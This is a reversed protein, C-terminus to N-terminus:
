FPLGAKKTSSMRANENESSAWLFVVAKPPKQIGRGSLYNRADM